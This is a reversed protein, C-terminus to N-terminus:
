NNSVDYIFNGKNTHEEGICDPGWFGPCCNKVEAERYCEFSCGSLSVKLSITRVFYSLCVYVYVYFVYVYILVWSCSRNGKEESHHREGATRLWPDQRRNTGPEVHFWCVSAAPTVRRGRGCCRPTRASTRVSCSYGVCDSSYGFLALQLWM